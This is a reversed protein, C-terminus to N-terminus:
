GLRRLVDAVAADTDLWAVVRMDEAACYADFDAERGPEVLLLFVVGRGVDHVLAARLGMAALRGNLSPTAYFGWAKRTVDLEAGTETRHTVLEDPALDLHAVHSLETGSRGVTFRRPPEVPEFRM